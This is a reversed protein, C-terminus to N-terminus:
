APVADLFELAADIFDFSKPTGFHETNRLTKAQGNPFVDALPKPDGHGDQDGLVVLVPCTIRSAADRDVPPRAARMCAALAHRDNAPNNAFQVFVSANGGEEVPEGKEIADALATAPPGATFVHDGIGALVIRHFREPHAAAARLLTQAGLSFGVADVQGDPPLAELVRDELTLYAEPDHPKPADGHGLLDVAIVERGADGLLDVWGFDRWNLEFSSAFGHVLLVPPGSM